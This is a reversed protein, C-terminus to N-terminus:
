AAAASERLRQTDGYICQLLGDRQFPKWQGEPQALSRWATASRMSVPKEAELARDPRRRQGSQRSWEEIGSRFTGWSMLLWLSKAISEWTGM